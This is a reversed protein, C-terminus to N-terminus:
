GFTLGINIASDSVFGLLVSLGPRHSSGSVISYCGIGFCQRSVCFCVRFGFFGVIALLGVASFGGVSRM